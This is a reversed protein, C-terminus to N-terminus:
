FDIVEKELPALSDVEDAAVDLAVGFVCGAAIDGLGLSLSLIESVHIFM